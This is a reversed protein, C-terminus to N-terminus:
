AAAAAASVLRQLEALEEANVAHVSGPFISKAVFAGLSRFFAATEDVSALPIHEDHESCGLYVPAGEMSGSRDRAAGPPGILAGSLGVVAGYRRPNRSAYELALCAGQSFGALLVKSPPLGAAEVERFLGAVVELASTLHPENRELPALFRQPYWTGGSAQPALRAVGPVGESAQEGLCLIDEASAGRGHILIVAARATHLPTSGRLVRQGEHIMM